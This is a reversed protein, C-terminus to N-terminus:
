AVLGVWKQRREPRQDTRAPQYIYFAAGEPREYRCAASPRYRSSPSCERAVSGSSTLPPTRSSRCESTCGWVRRKMGASSEDPRCVAIEVSQVGHLSLRVRSRHRRGAIGEQLVGGGSEHRNTMLEYWLPRGLLTSSAVTM